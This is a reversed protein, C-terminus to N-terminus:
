VSNAIMLEKLHATNLVGTPQKIYLIISYPNYYAMILIGDYGVLIEHNMDSTPKSRRCPEHRSTAKLSGCSPPRRPRVASPHLRQM